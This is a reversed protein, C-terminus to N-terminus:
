KKNPSLIICHICQCVFCQNLLRRHENHRIPSHNFWYFEIIQTRKVYGMGPSKEIPYRAIRSDMRYNSCWGIKSLGFNFFHELLIKDIVELLKKVRDQTLLSSEFCFAM